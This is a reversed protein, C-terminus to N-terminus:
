TESTPATELALGAEELSPIVDTVLYELYYKGWMTEWLRFHPDFKEGRRAALRAEVDWILSDFEAESFGFGLEGAVAMVEDKNRVKLRELVDGRAAVTRLFSVVNGSSM